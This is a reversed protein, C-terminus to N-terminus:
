AVPSINAIVDTLDERVATTQFVQTTAPAAM